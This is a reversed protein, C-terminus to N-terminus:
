HSSNLRTSKRDITITGGSPITIVEKTNRNPLKGWLINRLDSSLFAQGKVTGDSKQQLISISPARYAAADAMPVSFPMSLGLSFLFVTMTIRSHPFM